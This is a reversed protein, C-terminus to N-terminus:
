LQNNLRAWSTERCKDADLYGGAENCNTLDNELVFQLNTLEFYVM